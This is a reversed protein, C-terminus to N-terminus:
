PHSHADVETNTLFQCLREPSLEILSRNALVQRCGCYHRPKTVMYPISGWTPSDSSPRWNRSRVKDRYKRRHTNQDESPGCFIDKNSMLSFLLGQDQSPKIGWHLSISPCLLLLPYTLSCLSTPHSPPPESTFHPFLIFNSIYIFFSDLLFYFNLFFCNQISGALNLIHIDRHM